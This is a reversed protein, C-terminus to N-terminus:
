KWVWLVVKCLGAHGLAGVSLSARLALPLEAWGLHSRVYEAVRASRETSAVVDADQPRPM